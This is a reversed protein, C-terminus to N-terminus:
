TDKPVQIGNVEMLWLLDPIPIRYDGSPYYQEDDDIVIEGNEFSITTTGDELITKYRVWPSKQESTM